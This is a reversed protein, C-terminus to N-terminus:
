PRWHSRTGSRQRARAIGAIPLESARFAIRGDGLGAAGATPDGARAIPVPEGLANGPGIWVGLELEYDLNRSPGFSPETANGPKRQGNPRRVSQGSVRM